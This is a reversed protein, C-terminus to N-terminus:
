PAAMSPASATRPTNPLALLFPNLLSLPGLLILTSSLDLVSPLSVTHQKQIDLEFDVKGRTANTIRFQVGDARYGKM